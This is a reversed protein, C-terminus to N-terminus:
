CRRITPALCTHLPAAPTARTMRVRGRFVLVHPTAPYSPAAAPAVRAKLETVTDTPAAEIASCWGGLTKVIVEM